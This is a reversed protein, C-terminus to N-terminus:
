YAKSHNRCIRQVKVVIWEVVLFGNRKTKRCWHSPHSLLLNINNSSCSWPPFIWVPINYKWVLSSKTRSLIMYEHRFSRQSWFLMGTQIKGGLSSMVMPVVPKRRVDTPNELLLPAPLQVMRHLIEQAREVFLRFIWRRIQGLWSKPVKKEGANDWCGAAAAM